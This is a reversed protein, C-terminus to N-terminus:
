GSARVPRLARLRLASVLAATGAFASAIWLALRLPAEFGASADISHELLTAGATGLVVAVIAAGLSQGTIRVTALIGSANGSYQRPASGMLERNNPAQFFGFGAGCVISRWIIDATAPHAPLLALLALGASFVALGGTALLPPPYRDALHGALPAAVMITLPWPTLLLGAALPTYGFAVQYLFPLAVVALGQATFSSLSTAAALSFREIGFLELRLMPYKLHRQRRVFVFLLLASAALLLTTVLPPNRHAFGDLAVILLAIAPGSLLASPVDFPHGNGTKSPLLRRALFFDLTGLPVNV